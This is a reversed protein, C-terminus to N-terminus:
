MATKQQEASLWKGMKPDYPSLIRYKPNYQEQLFCCERFESDKEPRQLICPVTTQQWQTQNKNQTM